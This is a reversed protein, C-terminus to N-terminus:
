RRRWRPTRRRCEISAIYPVSWATGDGRRASRTSATLAAPPPTLPGARSAPRIRSERAPRARRRSRRRCGGAAPRALEPGAGARVHQHVDRGRPHVDLDGGSAGLPEELSVRLRQGREVARAHGARWSSSAQRRTTSLEAWSEIQPQECSAPRAGLHQRPVRLRLLDALAHECRVSARIAGPTAAPAPRDDVGRRDARVSRTSSSTATGGPQAVTARASPSRRSAAWSSPRAFGSTASM